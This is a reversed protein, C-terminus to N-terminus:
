REHAMSGHSSGEALHQSTGAVPALQGQNGAQQQQGPARAQPVAPLASIQLHERLVELLDLVIDLAWQSLKSQPETPGQEVLQLLAHLMTPGQDAGPAHADPAPGAVMRNVGAQVSAHQAQSGQAGQAASGVISSTRAIRAAEAEEEKGLQAVLASAPATVARLLTSTTVWPDGPLQSSYALVMLRQQLSLLRQQM